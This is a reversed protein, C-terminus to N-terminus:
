SLIFLYKGGCRVIECSRGHFRDLGACFMRWLAREIKWCCSLLTRVFNPFGPRVRKTYYLGVKADPSIVTERVGYTSCHPNDKSWEHQTQSYLHVIYLQFNRKEQKMAPLSHLHSSVQIRIEQVSSSFICLKLQNLMNAKLAHM